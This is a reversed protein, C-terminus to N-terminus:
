AVPQARELSEFGLRMLERIAASESKFRFEFRYEDLLHNLNDDLKVLKPHRMLSAQKM